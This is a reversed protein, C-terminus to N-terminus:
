KETHVDAGNQIVIGAIKGSGEVAAVRLATGLIYDSEDVDVVSAKCLPTLATIDKSRAPGHLESASPAVGFFLFVVLSGM